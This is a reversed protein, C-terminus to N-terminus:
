LKRSGYLFFFFFFFFDTRIELASQEADAYFDTFYFRGVPDIVVCRFIITRSCLIVNCYVYYNVPYELTHVM